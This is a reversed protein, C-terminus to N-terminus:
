DAEHSGFIELHFQTVQSNDGRLRQSLAEVKLGELSTARSLAVYDQGCEWADSLDVIVRILTM